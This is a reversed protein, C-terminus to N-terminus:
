SSAMIGFAELADLISNITTANAGIAAAVETSSFTSDITPTTDADAINSVQTGSAIANGNVELEECLLKMKQFRSETGTVM